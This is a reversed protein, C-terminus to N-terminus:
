RNGEEAYHRCMREVPDTDAWPAQDLLARERQEMRAREDASMNDIIRRTQNVLRPATRTALTPM